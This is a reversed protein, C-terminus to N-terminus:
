HVQEELMVTAEEDEEDQEIPTAAQRERKALIMALAMIFARRRREWRRLWWVSFSLALMSIGIWLLSGGQSLKFMSWDAASLAGGLPMVFTFSERVGHFTTTHDDTNM